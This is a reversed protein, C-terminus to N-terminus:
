LEKCFDHFDILFTMFTHTMGWVNRSTKLSECSIQCKTNEVFYQDEIASKWFDLFEHFFWLFQQYKVLHRNETTSELFWSFWESIHHIHPDYEVCKKINEIIRMTDSMKYKGCFISGRYSKKFFWSIWPFILSIISIESFTSEKYCKGCIMFISWFHQSHTPSVGCMEQYKWPDAHYRVNQIKWM